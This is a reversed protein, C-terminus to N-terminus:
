DIMSLIKVVGDDYINFAYNGCDFSIFNTNYQNAKTYSVGICGDGGISINFATPFERNLAASLYKNYLEQTIGFEEWTTDRVTTSATLVPFGSNYVTLGSEKIYAVGPVIEKVQGKYHKETSGQEQTASASYRFSGDDFVTEQCYWTIPPFNGDGSMFDRVREYNLINKMVNHKLIFIQCSVVIGPITPFIITGVGPSFNNKKYL